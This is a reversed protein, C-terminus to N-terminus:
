AAPAPAPPSSRPIAMANAKVKKMARAFKGLLRLYLLLIVLGGIITAAFAFGLYVGALSSPPSTNQASVWFLLVFVLDLAITGILTWFAGRRIRIASRVLKSDPIRAGIERIYATVSLYMIIGCVFQALLLLLGAFPILSCVFQAAQLSFITIAMARSTGRHKETRTNRGFAPDPTTARIWGILRIIGSSLIALGYVVMGLLMGAMPGAAGGGIAGLRGAFISLVFLAIIGGFLIYYSLLVLSAGSAVRAVYAPGATYISDPVVADRCDAGCEPCVGDAPLGALSYGCNPCIVFSELVRPEPM